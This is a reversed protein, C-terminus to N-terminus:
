SCRKALIFGAVRANLAPVTVEKKEEFSVSYAGWSICSLQQRRAKKMRHRFLVLSLIQKKSLKLSLMTAYNVEFSTISGDDDDDNDGFANASSQFSGSNQFTEAFQFDM